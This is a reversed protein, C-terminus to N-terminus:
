EEEEEEEILEELEDNDFTENNAVIYNALDDFYVKDSVDNFSECGYVGWVFYDDNIDFDSAVKNLIESPKRGDMLEDFMYMEFIEQDDYSNMQTYENWIRMLESDDLNELVSKVKEFEM